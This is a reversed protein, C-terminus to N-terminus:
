TRARGERRGAKAIPLRAMVRLGSERRNAFALEGGHDLLTSRVVSLGLGIGGTERSRSSELRTFPRMALERQGPPIGPGDDDVVLQVTGPEVEISLRACHGYKVANDILNGIARRLATSDGEIVASASPALSVPAGTDAFDDVVAEVLLRFDLADRVQSTARDRCFDLTRAIMTTMEEIDAAARRQAPEPLDALRFSLRALPTRLDHAIAGMMETREELLRQVRSRMANFAEAADRIEAPGGLPLPEAHPDAGIRRAAEAFRRIPTVIARSFLWALPLLLVAGMLVLSFVQRQFQTPFTEIVSEVVRWRGDSLRSAVYFGQGLVKMDPPAGPLPPPTEGQRVYVVLSDPMFGGIRALADRMQRATQADLNPPPSALQGEPVEFIRVERRPTGPGPGPWRPLAAPLSAPRQPDLLQVVTALPVPVNKLPPRTLVLGLAMAVALCLAALTLLFSRVLIPARSASVLLRKM